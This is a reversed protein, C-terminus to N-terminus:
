IMSEGDAIHTRRDSVGCVGPINEALVRAAEREDDHEYLGVYKVVGHNVLVRCAHAQWWPQRRLEQQLRARISEDDTASAPPSISQRDALARVLDARTVIGVLMEDRLVAVRRVHRANFIAAIAAIPADERVSVIEPNMCDKASEGHTKVYAAAAGGAGFFRQLWPTPALSEQTGIEHRHLLDGEGVSGVVRGADVVFVGGIRQEVLIKVIAAMHGDPGVTVVPSTMLDSANM